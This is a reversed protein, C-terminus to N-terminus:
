RLASRATPGLRLVQSPREQGDDLKAKVAAWAPDAALRRQAAEYAAADTTRTFWVFVREGERVPLRPYANPSPEPTFQGLVPLGAAELRPRAEADFLAAFGEEPPAWLYLIHATVLGTPGDRPGPPAFGRGPAAPKLYLVNDSQVIFPNAQGRKAAWVPGGYFASLAPARADVSDFQRVWTFRNADDLDRFQGVLRMGRAEQTEVFERDFLEAFADRQGAVIKYQRLEVVQAKAPSPASTAALALAM